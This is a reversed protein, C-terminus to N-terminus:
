RGARRASNDPLSSRRGFENDSRIGADQAIPFDAVFLARHVASEPSGAAEVLERVLSEWRGSSQFDSLARSRLAFTSAPRLLM